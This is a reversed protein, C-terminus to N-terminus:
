DKIALRGIEDYLVQPDKVNTGKRRLSQFALVGIGAVAAACMSSGTMTAFKSDVFTTEFEQSPLIIGRVKGSMRILQNATINNAFGVSFVEDYRAPYDADKTRVTCNGSAAFMSIGSKYVKKIADRLGSHENPSGFAMVVIDVERVITWLLAQIVSDFDGEGNSDLLCKAYYMDTAPAFGRIGNKGNASIIGAVGTAHGYVDRPSGSQTYNVSKFLDTPIDNHLPVGSDIVAVRVYKGDGVLPRFNLLSPEYFVRRSPRDHIKKLETKRCKFAGNEM